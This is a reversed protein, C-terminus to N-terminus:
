PMITVDKMKETISSWLIVRLLRGQISLTISHIPSTLSTGSWEVSLSVVKERAVARYPGHEDFRMWLDNYKIGGSISVWTWSPMNMEASARQAGDQAKWTLGVILQDRWLGIIPEDGILDQFYSAVGALAPLLDKEFTIRRRSCQEIIGNWLEYATSRDKRISEEYSRLLTLNKIPWNERWEPIYDVLGDESLYSSSCQWHLQPSGFYVVRGSLLEEQMTWARSQLPTPRTISHISAVRVAYQVGEDSLTYSSNFPHFLGGHCDSAATAALAIYANRYVSHMRAAEQKWDQDDDQIIYLTDIWLYQINLERVTEIAERFTKPLEELSIRQMRTHITAKTTDVPLVTGWCHSLAAYTAQM